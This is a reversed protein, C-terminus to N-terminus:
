VNIVVAKWSYEGSAQIWYSRRKRCSAPFFLSNAHSLYLSSRKTQHKEGLGALAPEKRALLGVMRERRPGGGPMVVCVAVPESIHMLYLKGRPQVISPHLYLCTHELLPQSPSWGAM